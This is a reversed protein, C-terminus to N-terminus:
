GPYTRPKMTPATSRSPGRRIELGRPDWTLVNYGARHLDSISVTGFLDGTGSLDTDGAEGWGPGM